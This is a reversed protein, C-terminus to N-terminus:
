EASGALIKRLRLIEAAHEHMRGALAARTEDHEAAGALTERLAAMEAFRAAHLTRLENTTASTM